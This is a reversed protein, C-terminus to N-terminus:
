PPFEPLVAFPRHWPACGGVVDARPSDEMVLPATSGVVHQCYSFSLPAERISAWPEALGSSSKVFIRHCDVLSVLSIPTKLILAALASLRDFVKEAPTDLLGLRRLAELRLPNVIKKMLEDAM